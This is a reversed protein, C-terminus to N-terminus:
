RDYSDNTEDALFYPSPVPFFFSIKQTEGVVIMKIEVCCLVVSYNSTLNTSWYSHLTRRRRDRRAAASRKANSLNIQTDFSEQLQANIKNSMAQLRAAFEAQSVCSVIETRLSKTENVLTSNISLVEDMKVDIGRRWRQEQLDQEILADVKSVVLLYFFTSFVIM